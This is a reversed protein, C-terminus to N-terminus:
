DVSLTLNYQGGRGTSLVTFGYEGTDVPLSIRAVGHESHVQAIELWEDTKEDHRDLYLMFDRNDPVTLIANLTGQPLEITQQGDPLDAQDGWGALTGSFAPLEGEITNNDDGSVALTQSVETYDGLTSVHGVSVTYEGPNDYQYDVERGEGGWGDGFDWFYEGAGFANATMICQLNECVLEINKEAIPTDTAPIQPADPADPAENAQYPTIDAYGSIWDAYSSVRAYVGPVNALGCEEGFSVVGAQVYSQGRTVFLPGGSDGYCSDKDGRATGACVMADEVIEGDYASTCQQHAVIPMTSERLENTAPGNESIQGWGTVTANEGVDPVPNNRGPLLIPTVNSKGELQLLALDPYGQRQYDPHEIIRSVNFTQGGSESLDRQGILVSVGRAQVNEICHAATLIWQSAILSGGCFQGESPNASSRNMVAVMWPFKNNTVETGGVVRPERDPSVLIDAASATASVPDSNDSQSGCASLGLASLTILTYISTKM